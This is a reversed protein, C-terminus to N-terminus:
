YYTAVRIERRPLAFLSFFIRLIRKEDHADLQAASRQVPLFSGCFARWPTVHPTTGFLLSCFFGEVPVAWHSNSWRKALIGLKERSELGCCWVGEWLFFTKRCILPSWLWRLVISSGSSSRVELGNKKAPTKATVMVFTWLMHVIFHEASKPLQRRERAICPKESDQLAINRRIRTM